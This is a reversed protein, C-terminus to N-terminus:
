EDQDLLKLVRCPNGAAIVNAPISKVVVSNAGIITNRGIEVGKLIVSNVGIWVNDHIIVPKSKSPYRTTHWDFDTIIVNAGCLVNKGIVIKEIAGISVGSFGCNEGMVILANNSHTSIICHRNVGILNSNNDSRLICFAGISIKSNPFRVFFSRGIFQCHKGLSVKKIPLVNRYYSTWFSEKVNLLLYHLKYFLHGLLDKKM